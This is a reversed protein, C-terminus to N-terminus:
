KSIVKEAENILGADLHKIQNFLSKIQNEVAQLMHVSSLGIDDSLLYKKYLSEIATHIQKNSPEDKSTKSESSLLSLSFSDMHFSNCSFIKVHFRGISKM